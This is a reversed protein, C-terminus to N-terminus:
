HTEVCLYFTLKSSNLIHVTISTTDLNSSRCVYTGADRAQSPEIILESILSRGPVEPIRQTIVARDRWKHHQTQIVHGKHFWDIM